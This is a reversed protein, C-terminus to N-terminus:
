KSGVVSHSLSREQSRSQLQDLGRTLGGRRADSRLIDSVSLWWIPKGRIAGNLTHRSKSLFLTKVPTVARPLGAKKPPKGNRLRSVGLSRLLAIRKELRDLEALVTAEYGDLLQRVTESDEVNL